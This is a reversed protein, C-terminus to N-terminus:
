SIDLFASFESWRECVRIGRGGYDSYDSDNPNNCRARMDKWSRYEARHTRSMGHVSNRAVMVERFACGCSTTKGSRMLKIRKEAVVGCDCRVEMLHNNQGSERELLRVVTLRGFRQGTYDKLKRNRM